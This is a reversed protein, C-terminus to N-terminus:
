SRRRAGKALPGLRQSEPSRPRRYRSWAGVTMDAQNAVENWALGQERLEMQQTSAPHAPPGARRMTVGARHLQDSVATSSLGLEAGIECLTWGQAYLDAARKVDVGVGYSPGVQRLRSLSSSVRRCVQSAPYLSTDLMQQCDIAATKLFVM